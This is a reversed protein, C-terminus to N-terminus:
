GPYMGGGRSSSRSMASRGSPSSDPGLRLDMTRQRLALNEREASALREGMQRLKEKLNLSSEASFPRGAAGDGISEGLRERLLKIQELHKSQEAELFRVRDVLQRDGTSSEVSRPGLKASGSECTNALNKQRLQVVIQAQRELQAHLEANEQRLAEAEAASARTSSSAGEGDEGAPGHRGLQRRLAAVLADDNESKRVLDQVSAKLERLQGELVGNRSKLADRKRKAEATEGRLKEAEEQLREFEERRKEAAQAIARTEKEGVQDARGRPAPRQPVEAELSPEGDEQLAFSGPRKLQERLDRVQRQLQAIQAARGKWQVHSPDDAVAMAKELSDESGLEKLLVKRQRQLQARLDQAEHRVEQLKNSAGLYKKKWDEAGEGLMVDTNKAILEEAQKRAEERPKKLEAELQSIRSKQSEATVQLRRNKKTLELLRQKLENGPDMPGAGESRMMDLDSRAQALEADKRSLREQLAACRQQWEGGHQPSPGAGGVLRARRIQEDHEDDSAGDEEGPAAVGEARAMEACHREFRAIDDEEDSIGGGLGGGGELEV